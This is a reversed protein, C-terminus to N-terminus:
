SRARQWMWAVAYSFGNTPEEKPDLTLYRTLIDNGSPLENELPESATCFHAPPAKHLLKKLEEVFAQPSQRDVFAPFERMM